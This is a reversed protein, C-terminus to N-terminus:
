FRYQQEQAWGLEERGQDAWVQVRPRRAGGREGIGVHHWVSGSWRGDGGSGHLQRSAPGWEGWAEVSGARGRKGKEGAGANFGGLAGSGDGRTWEFRGAQTGGGGRQGGMVESVMTPWPPGKEVNSDRRLV